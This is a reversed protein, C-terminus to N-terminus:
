LDDDGSDSGSSWEDEYAAGLEALGNVLNEREELSISPAVQTRLNRMKHVISGDSALSTHM